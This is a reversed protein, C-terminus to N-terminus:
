QPSPDHDQKLEKFLDTYLLANRPYPSRLEYSQGRHMFALKDRGFIALDSLESLPFRTEGVRLTGATIALTGTEVPLGPAFGEVAFLQQGPCAAIDGEGAARIIQPLQERQWRCWDGVRSFPLGDGELTGLATYRGELGCPCSFRDGHSHLTALGHCRPCLYLATEINEALTPGTYAIPQDAQRRDADEDIDRQILANIAEPTMAKLTDASYRGVVRGQIRGRRMKRAWFPAALYGGELRFTILPAGSMRVLKGTSAVVPGTQGTFSRMGEAFLCISHGGKVLQLMRMATRGAAQGKPRPVPSFVFVLLRSLWGLRFIHESAVFYMHERFTMAVLIPDIDTTHNSIIIAPEGISQIQGRYRYLWAILRGLTPRILAFFIRHRRSRDKRRTALYTDEPQTTHQEACPRSSHM